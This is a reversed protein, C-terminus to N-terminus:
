PPTTRARLKTLARTTKAPVRYSGVCREGFRLKQPPGVLIPTDFGALVERWVAHAAHHDRESLWTVFSRYPSAAPLRLGQYGAFIEQMLIPMSWGDLVIHHNTLSSGTGTKPLASSPPGSPLNTRSTACQAM